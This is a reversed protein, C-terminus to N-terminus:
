KEFQYAFHRLAVRPQRSVRQDTEAGVPLRRTALPAGGFRFYRADTACGQAVVAAISWRGHKNGRQDVRRADEIEVLLHGEGRRDGPHSMAGQKEIPASAVLSGVKGHRSM